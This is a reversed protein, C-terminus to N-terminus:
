GDAQRDQDRPGAAQGARPAQRARAAGRRLLRHRRALFDSASCTPHGRLQGPAARVGHPARVTRPPSVSLGPAEGAPPEARPRGRGVLPRAADRRPAGVPAHGAVLRAAGRPRARVHRAARDGARRDRARTSRATSARPSSAARPASKPNLYVINLVQGASRSYALGNDTPVINALDRHRHGPGPQGQRRPQRPRQLHKRAADQM